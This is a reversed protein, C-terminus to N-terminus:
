HAVISMTMVLCNEELDRLQLSYVKQCSPDALSRSSCLLRFTPQLLLFKTRFCVLVRPSCCVHNIHLLYSPLCWLQGTRIKKQFCHHREEGRMFPLTVFIVLYLIDKGYRRYGLLFIQPLMPSLVARPKSAIGLLARFSTTLVLGSQNIMTYSADKRSPVLKALSAWYAALVDMMM